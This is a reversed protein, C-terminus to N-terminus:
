IIPPIHTTVTERGSLVNTVREPFRGNVVYCDLMHASLFVPLFKDVSTRTSFKLLEEVSVQSLLKSKSQEKPNETFIGNVNTVFVVKAANLKFAIYAAISDSTVDWSPKFPDFRRLVKSPLLIAIRGGRSIERAAKLSDCAESHAIVKSLLFGYQDMGLIAMRHSVAAPLRFRTDLERVIDAFKGGGPVVVIQHEKALSSLESGLAKLVQPTELLSGGVKIVAEM